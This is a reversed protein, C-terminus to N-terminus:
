FLPATRCNKIYASSILKMQVAPFTAGQSCELQINGDSVFAIQGHKKQFM